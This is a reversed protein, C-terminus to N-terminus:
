GRDINRTHLYRCGSHSTLQVSATQWRYAAKAPTALHQQWAPPHAGQMCQSPATCEDGAAATRVQCPDQRPHHWCIKSPLATKFTLKAAGPLQASRGWCTHGPRPDAELMQMANDPVM